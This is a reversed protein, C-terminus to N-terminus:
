KPCTCETWDTSPMANRCADNGWASEWLIVTTGPEKWGPIPKMMGTPYQPTVEQTDQHCKTVPMRREPRAIIKGPRAKEPMMKEPMVMGPMEQGKSKEVPMMNGPKKNEPWFRIM